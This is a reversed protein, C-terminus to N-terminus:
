ASAWWGEGLFYLVMVLVMFLLGFLLIGKLNQIRPIIKFVSIYFVASGVGIVIWYKGQSAIYEDM